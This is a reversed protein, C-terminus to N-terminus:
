QQKEVYTGIREVYTGFQNKQERFTMPSHGYVEKFRKSFYGQTAFGVELAVKFVSWDAHKLLLEAGRKLRIHRIYETTSMGVTQNLKRHLDTRSMGILRTLKKVNLSPDAINKQIQFDLDLLFHPYSHPNPLM